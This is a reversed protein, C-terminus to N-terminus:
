ISDNLSTWNLRHRDPFRKDLQQDIGHQVAPTTVTGTILVANPDISLGAVGSPLLRLLQPWQQIWRSTTVNPEVSTLDSIAVEGFQQRIAEVMRSRSSQNPLTGTLTARNPDILLSVSPKFEGPNIVVDNIVMNELELHQILTSLQGLHNPNDARGWIHLGKHSSQLQLDHLLPLVPMLEIMRRTVLGSGGHDHVTLELTVDLGSFATEVAQTLDALLAADAVQGAVVVGQWNATLLVDDNNSSSRVRLRNEVAVKHFLAAPLSYGIQRASLATDATGSLMLQDRWGDLTFGHLEQLTNLGGSFGDLWLPRGLRDDIRIYDKIAIDPFTDTIDTLVQDLHDGKLHGHLTMQDQYRRIQLRPGPRPALQLHNTVSRVGALQQLGNIEYDLGMEPEAEGILHVQRGDTQVLPKLWPREDFVQEVDHRIQHHISQSNSFALALILVSIVISGIYM